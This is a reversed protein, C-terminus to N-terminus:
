KDLFEIIQIVRTNSPVNVCIGENVTLKTFDCNIELQNFTVYITFLNHVSKFLKKPNLSKSSFIKHSKRDINRCCPAPRKSQASREAGHQIQDCRFITLSPHSVTETPWSTRWGRVASVFSAESLSLHFIVLLFTFIEFHQTATELSFRSINLAM